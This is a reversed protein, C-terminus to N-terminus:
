KWQDGTGHAWAPSVRLQEGTKLKYGNMLEIARKAGAHDSFRIFGYDKDAIVRVTEAGYQKFLEKLM